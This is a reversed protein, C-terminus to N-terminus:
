SIPKRGVACQVVSRCLEPMGTAEAEEGSTLGTPCAGLGGLRSSPVGHAHLSASERIGQDLSAQWEDFRQRPAHGGGHRMRNIQAIEDLVSDDTQNIRGLAEIFSSADLELGKGFASNAARHDVRKAFIRPRAAHASHAPFELGRALPKTQLKTVLGREGIKRRRNSGVFLTEALRNYADVRNFRGGWEGAAVVDVFRLQRRDHNRRFGLAGIEREFAGLNSVAHPRRYFRQGRPFAAHDRQVVVAFHRHFLNPHLQAHVLGTHRLQMRAGDPAESFREARLNRRGCGKMRDTGRNERELELRL